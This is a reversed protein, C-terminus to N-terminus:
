GKREYTLIFSGIYDRVGNDYVRCLVPSKSLSFGDIFWGTGEVKDYNEKIYDLVDQIAECFDFDKDGSNTQLRRLVVSANISGDVWGCLEVSEKFPENTSTSLALSDARPNLENYMFRRVGHPFNTYNTNLYDVLGKLISAYGNMSM